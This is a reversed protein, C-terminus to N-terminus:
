LGGSLAQRESLRQEIVFEAIAAQEFPGPELFRLAVMGDGHRVVRTQLALPQEIGPLWLTVAVDDDLAAPLQTRALLGEQALNVTTGSWGKEADARQLSVPLEAVVRTYRRAHVRIGDQVRFRLAGRERTLAGKLAVLGSGYVFSLFVSESPSPVSAVDVGHPELAVESKVRAVVTANFYRLRAPAGAPLSITVVADESLRHDV